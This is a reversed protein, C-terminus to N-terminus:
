GEGQEDPEDTHMRVIKTRTRKTLELDKPDVGGMGVQASEEGCGCQAGM